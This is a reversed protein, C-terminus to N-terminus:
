DFSEGSVKEWLGSSKLLFDVFERVAGRGGNRTSVFVALKKAEEEADAPTAPLGVRKLIEIDVTDDGMFAIDEDKYKYRRLIDEYVYSKRLVGQHVEEIGLERARRIVVDSKRGTIIATKIGAKNLMRVGHGDRVHFIKYENGMNDLIIGGDTLVGDVDLILLKIRKAKETIEKDM